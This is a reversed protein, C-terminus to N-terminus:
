WSSGGGGGSGGGSSSGGTSSSSGFSSGGSSGSSMYNPRSTMSSSASSLSNNIFTQFRIVSFDGSMECWKPNELTIFEFKKIWKNSVGLVYAYPLIDYFYNPNKSVMLEINDKEATILYKKFGKIRSLLENGYPTRKSFKFLLIIMVGISILGIIYEKIFMSNNLALIVLLTYPVGAFLSGWVLGFLKTYTDNKSSLLGILVTLGVVPFLLAPIIADIGSTFLVPITIIFYVLYIMLVIIGKTKSSCFYDKYKSCNKDNVGDLIRDKTLYFSNYLSDTTVETISGGFLGQMFKREEPNNGDYDKLKRILYNNNNKNFLGKKPNNLNTGSEYIKVLDEYRKIIEPDTSKLKLDEIKLKLNNIKDTYVIKDTIEIYGKNALYILLSVVDKNNASGKYIFGIDLSNLGEPPYFEVKSIINKNKGFKFWIFYSIIMFLLPLIILINDLMINKEFYGEPLECRITIGEYPALLKNYSGSITNGNVNYKINRNDFSGYSGISFGLKSQDFEKPMTISFTVNNIYTDWNTGIINYYIEDFERNFDNSLSYRYKITYEKKGINEKSSDGIRISYNGDSISKKYKDNVELNSLIGFNYTNKSGHHIVNNKIPLVRIIGHKPVNFYAVINEEIDYSNNENVIININYSEIFYDYRMLNNMEYDTISFVKSPNFLIVILSILLVIRKM